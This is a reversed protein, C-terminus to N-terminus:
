TLTEIAKGALEVARRSIEPSSHDDGAAVWERVAVRVAGGCLPLILEARINREEASLGAFAAENALLTSTAHILQEGMRTMQAIQRSLLSPHQRIIALRAGHLEADALAPGLALLLLGIVQATLPEGAMRIRHAAIVEDDFAIDRVGLVADEKSEFYNFFTRSSVPVSACIAEVTAKELGVKQVLLVAARELQARTQARKRERLGIAEDAM